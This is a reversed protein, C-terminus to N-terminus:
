KYRHMYANDCNELVLMSSTIFPFEVPFNFSARM